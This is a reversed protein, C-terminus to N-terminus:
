KAYVTVQRTDNVLMRSVLEHYVILTITNTTSGSDFKIHLRINAPQNFLHHHNLGGYQDSSMDFSFLTFGERFEKYSINVTGDSGDTSQMSDLMHHYIRNTTKKDFDMSIM